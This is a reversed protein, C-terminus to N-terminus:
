IKNTLKIIHGNKNLSSDVPLFACNALASFSLCIYTTNNVTKGNLMSIEYNCM